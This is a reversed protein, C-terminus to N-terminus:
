ARSRAFARRAPISGLTQRGASAYKRLRLGADERQRWRRRKQIKNRAAQDISQICAVPWFRQRICLDEQGVAASRALKGQGKVAFERACQDGRVDARQAIDIVVGAFAGEAGLAEIKRGFQRRRSPAARQHPKDLRIAIAHAELM